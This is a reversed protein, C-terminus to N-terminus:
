NELPIQIDKQRHVDHLLVYRRGQKERAIYYSFYHELYPRKQVILTRHHCVYDSSM